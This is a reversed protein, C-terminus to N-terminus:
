AGGDWFDLVHVSCSPSSDKDPAADSKTQMLLTREDENRRANYMLCAPSPQCSRTKNRTALPPPYMDPALYFHLLVSDRHTTLCSKQGSIMVFFNSLSKNLEDM